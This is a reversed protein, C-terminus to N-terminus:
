WQVPGQRTARNTSGVSPVHSAAYATSPVADRRDSLERQRRPWNCRARRYQTRRDGPSTTHRSVSQDINLAHLGQMMQRERFRGFDALTQQRDVTESPGACCLTERLRRRQHKGLAAPPHHRWIDNTAKLSGAAQWDRSPRPPSPTVQSGRTKGHLLMVTAKAPVACTSTSEQEQNLSQSIMNQESPDHSAEAATSLVAASTEHSASICGPNHQVHVASQVIM